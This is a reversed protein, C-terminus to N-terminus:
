AYRQQLFQIIEGSEYLWRTEGADEIRLCPVQVKGGQQQLLQKHEAQKADVLAINLGQRKMARRVKVCFPCAAYQYLALPKTQEDLQAQQEPARKPARPSFLADFLLILRGLLWRIIAM